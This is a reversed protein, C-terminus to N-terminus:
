NGNRVDWVDGEGVQGLGLEVGRSVAELRVAQLATITASAGFIGQMLTAEVGFPDLDGIGLLQWLRDKDAEALANYESTDVANLVESASMSTRNRTRYVINLDDAAARDSMGTYGRNEPDTTLEDSLISM